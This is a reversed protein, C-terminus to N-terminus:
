WREGLSSASVATMEAHLARFDESVPRSLRPAPASALLPLLDPDLASLLPQVRLCWEALLAGSPCPVIGVAVLIHEGPM